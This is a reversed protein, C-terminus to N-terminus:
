FGRARARIATSWSRMRIPWCRPWCGPRAGAEFRTDGPRFVIGQMRRWGPILRMGEALFPRITPAPRPISCTSRPSTANGGGLAALGGQSGTALIRATMGRAVLREVVADLGVCHSGIV